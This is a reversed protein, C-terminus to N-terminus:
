EKSSRTTRKNVEAQVKESGSAAAAAAQDKADKAAKATKNAATKAQDQVAPSSAGLGILGFLAALITFIGVALGAAVDPLFRAAEVPDKQALDVFLKTRETIYKVPDDSFVLDTPSVPKEPTKPVQAELEADQIPKKIGFTKDRLTESRFLM